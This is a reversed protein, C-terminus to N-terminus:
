KISISNSVNLRKGENQIDNYTAKAFERGNIKLVTQKNALDNVSNILEILLDDTLNSNGIKNAVLSAFNDIFSSNELPLVAEAGREGAIYNGMNVGAGPNNVIGGKALRPLTITNLRSINIGPVKNIKKLLSNIAKIPTNIVNQVTSLVANIVHKFASSVANGITQGINRFVNKINNFLNQFFSVINNFASKIGNVGAIAGNILLKVLSNMANIIPVIITNYFWSGIGIAVSVIGNWLDLLIGKVAGAITLFVGTVIGILGSLLNVFGQIFTNWAQSLKETDGTFIAVIINFLGVLIEIIGKFSLYFGEGTLLLGKIFSGWNGSANEYYEKWGDEWFGTIQKVPKKFKKTTDQISKDMKKDDVSLDYSPPAFGPTNDNSNQKNSDLNTIEDIGSILQRQKQLEKTTKSSSNKMKTFSDASANAFLNVGFLEKSISNILSLLKYVANIIWQIIPEFIKAIAFGIYEMDSQIQENYQSLNNAINRIASYATRLGFVALSWKAVKKVITDVSNGVKKTNIDVDLMDDKINTVNGKQKLSILKNTLKEIESNLKMSENKSMRLNEPLDM